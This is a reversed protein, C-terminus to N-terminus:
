TAPRCRSQDGFGRLLSRSAVIRGCLDHAENAWQVADSALRARHAHAVRVARAIDSAEKCALATGGNFYDHLSRRNSLVLPKSAAMAEYAGRLLCNEHDTLDMVVRASFLERYFEDTPMFGLFRVRPYATAEIGVKRYNGSVVLRFRDQRLADAAKFVEHYPEDIDFSCILFCKRDIESVSDQYNSLDPHPDPCLFTRGGIDSVMQAHAPNTM